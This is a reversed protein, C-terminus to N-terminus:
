IITCCCTAPYDNTSVKNENGYVFYTHCAEKWKYIVRTVPILDVTHRQQLIRGAQSFKTWHEKILRDSAQNVNPDPFGMLPYVMYQADKFLEKGSVKSLKALELGGSQEGVFDDKNNTWQVKLNIYVLLQRKGKCVDCQKVGNGKCDSCCERRVNGAGSCKKCPQNGKGQCDHCDKVSSTYPVKVVKTTDEFMLPPQVSIVWPGPAPQMYADVQQGTFPEYCWETSRSETFTELRYRYTNFAEINTIVGEEAPGSSYCCKDSVYEKFAKRAEDESLVPINWNPLEQNPQPPTIPQMPIPPPLYGGGSGGVTGEYGPVTGFFGPPPASLGHFHSVGPSTMAHGQPYYM